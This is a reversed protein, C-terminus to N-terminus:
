PSTTEPISEPAVSVISNVTLSYRRRINPNHWLTFEKEKTTFKSDRAILLDRVEVLDKYQKTATIIFIKYTENPLLTIDVDTGTFWAYSYDVGKNSLDYPGTSTNLNYTIQNGTSSLLLLTHTVQDNPGTSDNQIFSIGKVDLLIKNEINQEIFFETFYSTSNFRTPLLPSLGEVHVGLEKSLEFRMRRTNNFSIRYYYGDEAIKVPARPADITSNSLVSSGNTDGSKTIIEFRFNGETLTSIDIVGEFWAKTYDFGNGLNVTYNPTTLNMTYSNKQTEDQLNIVNVQHSVTGLNMNTRSLASWGKIYLNNGQWDFNTIYTLLTDEGNVIYPQENPTNVLTVQSKNLYGTSTNSDYLVLGPTSGTVLNGNVIPNTSQIYYVDGSVAKITFPYNTARQDILYLTNSLDTTSYVNRNADSKLIALQYKNLDKFGLYRDIKFAFGAIKISWWPDSAYRTNIGAGKTGINSSYFLSNNTTSNFNSYDLYHRLNIGMHEDVAQEVSDFSNADDPNSDYAGYGFLNFRTVAYSSRGYASEHIAMSYIMLANMGYNNQANIFAQAKDKMVSSNVDLKNLTFYYNFYDNLDQATYQTTTRLNLFDYYNYYRGPVGNVLVPNKLDLDTYFIIGDPSYYTGNALWDPAVGYDYKNVYLATDIQVTIQRISVNGIKTASTVDSVIYQTINPRIIHGTYTNDLSNRTTFSIFWNNSRNEIYILPIIDIGNLQIYGRAGNVEVEASLDSPKVNETNAKTKIATKYYYLPNAQSIYTYQQTLAKDRWINTTPSYLYTHNQSYAMARDAAVINMPSYSEDHRVVVNPTIAAQSIMLDYAQQFQNENFCGLNTFQDKGTIRDVSYQNVSCALPINAAAFTVTWTEAQVLVIMLTLLFIFLRKM